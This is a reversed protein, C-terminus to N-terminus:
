RPHARGSKPGCRSTRMAQAIRRMMEKTVADKMDEALRRM